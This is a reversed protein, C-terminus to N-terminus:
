QGPPPSPYAPRGHSDYTLVFDIGLQDYDLRPNPLQPTSGTQMQTPSRSQGGLPSQSLATASSDHRQASSSGGTSGAYSPMTANYSTSPTALDVQIGHVKLIDRLRQNDAFVADRERTAGSFLEKLRLVEAELAKTYQEKRERHTRSPDPLVKSYM